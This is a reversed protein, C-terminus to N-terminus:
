ENGAGKLLALVMWRRWGTLREVKTGIYILRQQEPTLQAAAQAAPGPAPQVPPVAGAKQKELWASFGGKEQKIADAVAAPIFAKTLGEAKKGEAFRKQREANKTKKDAKAEDKIYARVPVLKHESALHADELAQEVVGTVRRSADGDGLLDGTKSDTEDKAM